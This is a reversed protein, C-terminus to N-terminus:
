KHLRSGLLCMPILLLLFAAHYWVPMISWYQAQVFVGMMLLVVGLGLATRHGPARALWSASFGAALSALISAALLILLVGPENVAAGPPPLMGAADLGTNAAFWLASWVVFGTAVALIKRVM